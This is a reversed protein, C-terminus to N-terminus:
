VCHWAGSVITFIVHLVQCEVRVNESILFVKTGYPLNVSKRYCSNTYVYSNRLTFM